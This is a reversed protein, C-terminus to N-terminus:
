VTFQMYRFHNLILVVVMVQIDAVHSEGPFAAQPTPSAVAGAARCVCWHPGDAKQQQHSLVCSGRTKIKHEGGRCSIEIKQKISSLLPNHHRHGIFTVWVYKTHM